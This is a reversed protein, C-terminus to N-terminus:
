STRTSSCCSHSGSTPPCVTSFRRRCVLRPCTVGVLRRSCTDPLVRSWSWCGVAEDFLSARTLYNEYFVFIKRRLARPFERERMYQKVDALRQAARADRSDAREAMQGILYSVACAGLLMVVVSYMREADSVPIYDGYGVGFVTSFMFYLTVLYRIVPRTDILLIDGDYLTASLSVFSARGYNHQMRALAWWSCTVCHLVLIVRFVVGLLSTNVKLWEAAELRASIRGLRFVRLMHLLRLLRLLPVSSVASNTLIFNVPLSAVADVGFWGRVYTSAIVRHSVKLKARGPARIATFFVLAVDCMFVIDMALLFPQEKPFHEFALTFPVEVVSFLVLLGVLVDWLLHVRATPDVVWRLKM